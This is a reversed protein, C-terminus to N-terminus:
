AAKRYQPLDVNIQYRGQVALLKLIWRRLDQADYWCHADIPVGIERGWRYITRDTPKRLVFIKKISALLDRGDIEVGSRDFGFMKRLTLYQELENVSLRVNPYLQRLEGFAEVREVLSDESEDLRIYQYRIRQWQRDSIQSGFSKEYIARLIAHSGSM